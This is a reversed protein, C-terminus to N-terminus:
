QRHGRTGEAFHKLTAGDRMETFETFLLGQAPIGDLAVKGTFKSVRCIRKAFVARPYYYDLIQERSTPDDLYTDLLTNAADRNIHEPTPMPITM